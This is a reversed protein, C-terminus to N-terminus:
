GGVHDVPVEGPVIPKSNQGATSPPGPIVAIVMIYFILLVSISMAQDLARGDGAVRSLDIRDTQPTAALGCEGEDLAVGRNHRRERGSLGACTAV